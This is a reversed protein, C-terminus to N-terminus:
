GFFDSANLTFPQTYEHQCHICKIQIPKIESSEKITTSYDRIKVYTNKDCQHLFDLIYEPQDVVENPTEIQRIGDALVQMTLETIKQLAEKTRKQSEDTDDIASISSLEKQVEFQKVSAQNMQKFTLPRLQFTLDGITLKEDYNGAKLTALSAPLNIGYSAPEKCSPCDTDIQLESGNSAIRIGILIADLDVNTIKWPDKINPMCSAILDSIASGNFLADPTKITIEDIATMPYVPLEGSEPMDIVGEEYIKGKSPLNIHIAPRRFYQKLPNVPTSM